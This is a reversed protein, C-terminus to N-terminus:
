KGGDPQAGPAPPRQQQPVYAAGQPMYPMQPMMGRMQPPMGMGMQPMYMMAGGMQPYGPYMVMQPMAQQPAVPAAPKKFSPVFETAKANLSFAKANPNLTSKKVDVKAEPEPASTAAAAAAAKQDAHQAVTSPVKGSGWAPKPPPANKPTPAVEASPLVSSYREEEDYDALDKQGREEAMHPNDSIQNQIEYAIRAAEAESIGGKTKDITTTYMSEDFKTDVGFLKKNASFQDWQANSGGPKKGWAGGGGGRKGGLGAEEELTLGPADGEEPQWAVLERNAGTAGRSIGGDTFDDNMRSPGVALDSMGVDRATISEVDAFDVVMEDVPKTRKAWGNASTEASAAAAKAEASTDGRAYRKPWAAHITASAGDGNAGSCSGFVGEYVAGSKMTVEVVYGKLVTAAFRVGADTMTGVM